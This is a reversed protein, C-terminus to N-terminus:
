DLPDSLSDDIAWKAGGARDNPVVCAHQREQEVCLRDRELALCNNDKCDNNHKSTQRIHGFYLDSSDAPEQKSGIHRRWRQLRM